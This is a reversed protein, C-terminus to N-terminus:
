RSLTRLLLALTDAEPNVQGRWSRLGSELVTTLQLPDSTSADQLTHRVVEATFPEGMRNRCELVSRGYLLLLDGEAFRITATEIPAVGTEELIIWRGGRRLVLPPSGAPWVLHLESRASNLLAGSFHFDFDPHHILSALSLWWNEREADASAATAGSALDGLIIPAVADSSLWEALAFYHSAARDSDQPDTVASGVVVAVNQWANLGTVRYLSGTAQHSPTFMMFSELGGTTRHSGCLLASLRRSEARLFNENGISDPKTANLAQTLRIRREGAMLHIRLDTFNIPKVIYDDAGARLAQGIEEATDKGTCLIVQVPHYEPSQRLKQCLELGDMRPMDWDTVVLRIPQRDLVALAAVGDEAQTPNYGWLDLKAALLARVTPNDDVILVDM